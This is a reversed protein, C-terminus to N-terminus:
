KKLMGARQDVLNIFAQILKKTDEDTGKIKRLKEKIDEM